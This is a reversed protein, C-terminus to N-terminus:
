IRALLHVILRFKSCTDSVDGPFLRVEGALLCKLCTRMYSFSCDQLHVYLYTPWTTEAIWFDSKSWTKLRLRGLDLHPGGRPASIAPRAEGQEGRGVRCTGASVTSADDGQPPHKRKKVTMKVWVDVLVIFVYWTDIQFSIM